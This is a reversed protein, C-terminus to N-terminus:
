LEAFREAVVEDRWPGLETKWTEFRPVTPTKAGVAPLFGELGFDCRRNYEGSRMYRRQSHQRQFVQLSM